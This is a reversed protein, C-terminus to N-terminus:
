KSLPPDFVKSFDFADETPGHKKIKALKEGAQSFTPISGELVWWLVQYNESPQKFWNKKNRLLEVHASKYVFYRLSAVDKWMSMNLLLDPDDFARISTANGSEDKLRWIFGPSQEALANIEDLRSVFGHMVASEMDAVAFAVNLQALSFGSM